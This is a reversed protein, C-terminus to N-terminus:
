LGPVALRDWSLYGETFGVEIVKHIVACIMTKHIHLLVKKYNSCAKYFYLDYLLAIVACNYKDLIYLLYLGLKSCLEM